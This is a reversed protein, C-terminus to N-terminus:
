VLFANLLAYKLYKPISSVTFSRMDKPEEMLSSLHFYSPNLSLVRARNRRLSKLHRWLVLHYHPFSLRKQENWPNKWPNKKKKGEGM